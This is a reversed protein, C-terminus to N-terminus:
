PTPDGRGTDDTERETKCGPICKRIKKGAYRNDHIRRVLIAVEDDEVRTFSADNGVDPQAACPDKRAIVHLDRYRIADNTVALDDILGAAGESFCRIRIATPM